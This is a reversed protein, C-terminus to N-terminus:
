VIKLTQGCFGAGTVGQMGLSRFKAILGLDTIIGYLENDIYANEM